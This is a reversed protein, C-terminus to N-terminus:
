PHPSVSRRKTKGTPGWAYFFLYGKASGGEITGEKGLDRCHGAGWGFLWVKEEENNIMKM